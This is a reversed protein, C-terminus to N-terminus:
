GITRNGCELDGASEMLQAQAICKRYSWDVSRHLAAFELSKQLHQEALKDDGMEHYLMAMGLYHHAMVRLVGSEHQSALELAQQYTKLAEHLHGQATLIDAKEAM